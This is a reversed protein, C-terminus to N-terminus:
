VLKEKIVKATIEWSHMVLTKACDIEWNKNLELLKKIKSALLTINDPQVLFGNIGELIIEKLGGLAYAVVPVGLSLSTLAIGSQDISHYPMVICEVSKIREVFEFNSLYKNEIIVQNNLNLSSILANLKNEYDEFAIGAILLSIIFGENKLIEIARIADEIGKYPRITGIMGIQNKRKPVKVKKGLDGMIPGHNIKIIKKEAVGIKLLSNKTAESHVLLNNVTNYLRFYRRKIRESRNDHPLFNHVTYFINKNFIELFKLLQLELGSKKLLPLWQFFIADYKKIQILLLFWNLIYAILKKKFQFGKYSFIDEWYKLEKKNKKGLIEVEFFSKLSKAFYYTYIPTTGNFDVVLINKMNRNKM